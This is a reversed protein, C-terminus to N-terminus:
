KTAISKHTQESAYAIIADILEKWRQQFENLTFDGAGVNRRNRVMGDVRCPRRIILAARRFSDMGFQACLQHRRRATSIGVVDDHIHLLWRRCWLPIVERWAEAWFVHLRWRRTALQLMCPRISLAGHLVDDSNITECFMLILALLM